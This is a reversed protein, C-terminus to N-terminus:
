LTQLVNQQLSWLHIKGSHPIKEFWPQLYRKRTPLSLGFFVPIDMEQAIKLSTYSLKFPMIFHIIDAGKFAERVVPEDIRAFTFGNSEVINNIFPYVKTKVIYKDPEPQGTSVVRVVHGRKRLSDVYRAAWIAAGKSTDSSENESNYQDIVMVIVM